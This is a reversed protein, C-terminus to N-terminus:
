KQLYSVKKAPVLGEEKKTINRSISYNDPNKLLSTIWFPNHFGEKEPNLGYRRQSQHRNWGAFYNEPYGMWLLYSEPRGGDRILGTSNYISAFGNELPLLELTEANEIHYPYIKVKDQVENDLVNDLKVVTHFGANMTIFIKGDSNIIGSIPKEQYYTPFKNQSIQDFVEKKINETVYIEYFCGCNMATEYIVPVNKEDLTVTLFRGDLLGAEKDGDFMEPHEPYWFEYTLRTYILNERHIESSHTYVIPLSVDVFVNINKKENHILKLQGIQDMSPNYKLQNVQQFQVIDPAYHVFLEDRTMELLPKGDRTKPMTYITYNHVHQQEVKEADHVKKIEKNTINRAIGRIPFSFLKRSKLHKCDIQKEISSLTLVILNNFQERTKLVAVADQWKFQLQRLQENYYLFLAERKEDINLTDPIELYEVLKEIGNGSLRILEGDLENIRFDIAEQMWNYLQNQIATNDNLTLINEISRILAYNVALGPLNKILRCEPSKVNESMLESNILSVFRYQNHRFMNDVVSKSLKKDKLTPLKNPLNINGSQHYAYFLHGKKNQKSHYAIYEHNMFYEFEDRHAVELKIEVTVLHNGNNEQPRSDLSMQKIEMDGFKKNSLYDHIFRKLYTDWPLRMKGREGKIDPFEYRDENVVQISWGKQDQDTEFQLKLNVPLLDGAIATNAIVLLVIFITIKTLLKM